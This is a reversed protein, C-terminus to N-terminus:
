QAAKFIFVTDGSIIGDGPEKLRSVVTGDTPAVLRAYSLNTKATIAQAQALQLAARGSDREMIGSEERQRLVRRAHELALGTEREQQMIGNYANSGEEGPRTAARLQLAQTHATEYAAEAKALDLRAAEITDFTEDPVHRAKGSAIRAEALRANAEKLAQEFPAKNLEALVEGKKVQEGPAAHVKSVIGGVQFSLTMEHLGPGSVLSREQRDPAHFLAFGIYAVAALGLLISLLKGAVLTKRQMENM